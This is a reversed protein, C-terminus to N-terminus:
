CLSAHYTFGCAGFELYYKSKKIYKFFLNKGIKSMCINM